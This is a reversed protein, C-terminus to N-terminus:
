PEDEATYNYLDFDLWLGLAACRAVLEGPMHFGGNVRRFEGVCNIGAEHRALFETLEPPQAAIHNLVAVVYHDPQEEGPPIPPQSSWSNEMVLRGGRTRSGALQVSKAPLGVLAAVAESACSFGSVTLHAYVRSTM